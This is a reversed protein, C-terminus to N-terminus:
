RRSPELVTCTSRSALWTTPSLNAFSTESNMPRTNSSSKASTTASPIQLPYSVLTVFPRLSTGTMLEPFHGYTERFIMDRHEPVEEELKKQLYRCGHQDKCLPLIDGQLDELRMGAFRNDSLSTLLSRAVLSLCEFMCERDMDARKSKINMHGNGSYLAGSGGFNDDDFGYADYGGPGPAGAAGAFHQGGLQPGGNGIEMGAYLPDAQGYPQPM